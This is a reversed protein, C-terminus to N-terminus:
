GVIEAHSHRSMDSGALTLTHEGSRCRCYKVGQDRLRTVPALVRRSYAAYTLLIASLGLFYEHYWDGGRQGRPVKREMSDRHSHTLMHEVM